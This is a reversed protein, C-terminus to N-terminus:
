GMWQVFAVLDMKEAVTRIKDLFDRGDLDLMFRYLMCGFALFDGHPHGFRDFRM